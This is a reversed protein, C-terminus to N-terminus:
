SPSVSRSTRAAPRGACTPPSSPPSRTAGVRASRRASAVLGRQRDADLTFRAGRSRRAIGGPGPRLAVAEDVGDLYASWFDRDADFDTSDRYDSEERILTEVSDFRAAAVEADAVAATYREAIRRNFLSFGFADLVIHHARLYLLVHDDALRLVAARVCPDVSLDVPRELDRAMWEHAARWPDVVSILDVTPALDLTRAGPTQVVTGDALTEFGAVLVEAESAAASVATVLAEEDVAGRLEICESTNFLPNDPNLQQAFWVGSQARSLALRSTDPGALPV